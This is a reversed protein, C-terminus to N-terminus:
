ENLFGRIKEAIEDATDTPSFVTAYVGDPDMLYLYASHDMAYEDEIIKDGEFMLVKAYYARHSQAAAAVQIESGTLGILRPHFADVYEAMVEPTDRAPDVTILLPQVKAADEGLADMVLGVVALTTPCVDPCYTYGFFILPWSGRFDEDTVSNGRHDILSFERTVIHRAVQQATLAQEEATPPANADDIMRIVLQAGMVAVGTAILLWM